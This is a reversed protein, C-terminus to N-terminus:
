YGFYNSKYGYRNVGKVLLLIACFLHISSIHLLIPIVKEFIFSNFNM